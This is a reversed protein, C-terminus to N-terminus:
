SAAENGRPAEAFLYDPYRALQEFEQALPM